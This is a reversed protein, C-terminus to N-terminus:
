DVEDCVGLAGGMGQGVYYQWFCGVLANEGQLDYSCHISFHQVVRLMQCPEYEFVSTKCPVRPM